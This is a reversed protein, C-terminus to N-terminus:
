KKKRKAEALEWEWATEVIKTLNATPVWGLERHARENSAVVKAPDGPRRKGITVKIPRGTVEKAVEIVERVSYGDQSGLNITSHSNSGDDLARLAFLHAECLDVVYIYDRVCTGDNTTYDDGFVVIEPREGLAAKLVSPILHTVEKHRIGIDVDPHSGAVNFYRLTIYKLKHAIAVDRLIDEVMLKSAGYPSEPFTPTIEKVPIRQVDGYVAATSSFILKNVKADLMGKILNLSGRVNNNYYKLPNSVSEPVVLSAAFHMVADIKFKKFVKKVDKENQLDGLMFPVSRPVFSRHGTSLNDFVIPQLGRELLMRVMHSGIYGAGGTVLIRKSKM